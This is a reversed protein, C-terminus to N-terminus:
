QMQQVFEALTGWDIQKIQRRANGYRTVYRDDRTLLYATLQNYPDYGAQHMSEVIQAFIHNEQEDM